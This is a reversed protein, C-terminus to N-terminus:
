HIMKSKQLLTNLVPYTTCLNYKSCQCNTLEEYSARYSSEALYLIYRTVQTSTIISSYNKAYHM